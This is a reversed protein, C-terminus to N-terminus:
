SSKEFSIWSKISTKFKRHTNVYKTKDRLNTVLKEVKETKMIEPLFRLDKYLEHLKETYQAHVELFYGKDSEKNYNRIFDENFESTDKNWDFKNVSLKQSM